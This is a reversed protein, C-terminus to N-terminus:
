PDSMYERSEFHNRRFIGEESVKESMLRNVGLEDNMTVYEEVAEIDVGLDECLALARDRGM